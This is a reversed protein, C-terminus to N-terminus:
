RTLDNYTYPKRTYGCEMLLHSAEAVKEERLLFLPKGDGGDTQLRLVEELMLRQLTRNTTINHLNVYKMVIDVAEEPHEHCWIWGKRSAKAFKEATAKHLSYYGGTVYVGDEPFDYGHEALSHVNGSGLVVNAQKLQYYENYSTVFTADIAGSLFLSVNRIFHVFDYGLGEKKSFLMALLSFASNWIGVRKGKLQMPDQGERGVVMISGHMSTQLINVVRRGEDIMKLADLVTMTTFQCVGGNLLESSPISNTPFAIEVDLGEEAYFGKEKAVFYGAFQSQAHWQPIFTVREANEASIILPCVALLALLRLRTRFLCITASHYESKREM